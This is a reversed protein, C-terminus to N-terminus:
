FLFSFFPLFTCNIVWSIFASGWDDLRAESKSHVAAGTKNSVARTKASLLRRIALCWHSMVIIGTAWSAFIVLSSTWCLGPCITWLDRDQFYGVCSLAPLTAVTTYRRSSFWSVGLEFGLVVLFFFFFCCLGRNQFVGWDVWQPGLVIPSGLYFKLIQWGLLNGPSINAATMRQHGQVGM